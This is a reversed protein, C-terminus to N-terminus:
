GHTIVMGAGGDSAGHFSGSGLSANQFSLSALHSASNSIQLVGTVPDYSLAVGAASFPLLDIVDGSTFDQLQPGAYSIGGVNTGFSEFHDIVLRDDSGLFSMKTNTGIAAAVELTSGGALKFVGASTPDVASTVALSAGNAITLAGNDLISAITNNGTLTWDSGPDAALATFNRFSWTHANETVSGVGGSLGSLSGVGGALELTNSAGAATSGVVDGILVGSAGAVLRNAGAGAFTVAHSIGSITGNNTVTAAAGYAIVGVPGSISGGLANAVQGGAALRVGVSSSGAIVGSNSVTGAGGQIHIGRQSSIVGGANNGVSGGATLDIGYNTGSISGDNSVTGAATKIYIGAAAGQTTILGGAANTVAGGAGLAIADSATALITGSNVVTGAGSAAGIRVTRGSSMLGTNTVQGGYDLVVGYALGTIAGSNSVSGPAHTIFVGTGSGGGGLAGSGGISGSNAVSGGANLLVGDKGTILGSSSVTGLAALSLGYGTTAAALTGTNTITWPGGSGGSIANATGTATVM